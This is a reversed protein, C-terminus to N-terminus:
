DLAPEGCIIRCNEHLASFLEPRLIPKTLYADMGSALGAERENALADASLGIIRPQKIAEGMERIVRTAQLGDMEPLRVDMLIIDPQHDEVFSVAELGNVCYSAEVGIQGLLLRILRQNTLNDEVVLVRAPFQSFRISKEKSRATRYRPARGELLRTLCRALEAERIPKSAVIVGDPPSVSHAVSTLVLAAVSDDLQQNIARILESGDMVPMDHDTILLDFQNRAKVWDLAEGPCGFAVTKARWRSLSNELIKLNIPHDDVIVVTSGQLSEPPSAPHRALGGRGVPMQMTFSFTSGQGVKSEVWIVGGMATVLRRSIALGLGTGGFHRTTSSHAQTFVQFLHGLRDEPIGIGSDTVRVLWNGKRGTSENKGVSITITGESTFKVANGVLNVIVQRFRTVDGILSEPLDRDLDLLLELNKKAVAPKFLELSDEIAERLNFDEEELELSGSEIKSYDLIDNILSLLTEGCGQITEVHERQDAGLEMNLLIGAMGIVGNLPTRIEHSMAALFDSKAQNAQDAEERLRDALKKSEEITALHYHWVRVLQQIERVITPADTEEADFVGLAEPYRKKLDLVQLRVLELSEELDRNIDKVRTMFRNAEETSIELAYAQRRSQKEAATYSESIAALFRSVEEPSSEALATEISSGTAVNALFKRAQLKLLKHPVTSM